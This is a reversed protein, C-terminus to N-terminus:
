GVERREHLQDQLEKLSAILPLQLKRTKLRAENQIPKKDAEYKLILERANNPLPEVSPPTSNWGETVAPQTRLRIINYAVQPPVPNDQSEVSAAYATEPETGYATEIERSKEQENKGLLQLPKGTAIPTVHARIMWDAKKPMDSIHEGPVADKSHSEEVNEDMGVYVGKTQTPNFVFCVYFEEPVQVPTIKITIWKEDGKVFTSYPKTIKRSIEM